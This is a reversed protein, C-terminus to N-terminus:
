RFTLTQRNGLTLQPGDAHLMQFHLSSGVFTPENPVNGPITLYGTRGFTLPPFWATSGPDLLFNGSVGPVPLNATGTSAALVGLAGQSGLMGFELRSGLVGNTMLILEGDTLRPGALLAIARYMPQHRTAIDVTRTPNPWFGGESSRGLEPTWSIAGRAVHHHDVATGSGRYRLLSAFSGYAIGTTRTAIKGVRDYKDFKTPVSFEYGWPSLLVDTYSHSSCVQM